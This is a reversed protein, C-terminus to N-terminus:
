GMKIRAQARGPTVAMLALAAAALFGLIIHESQGAWGAAFSAAAQGAGIAAFQLALGFGQEQMSARSTLYSTLLRLTAVSWGALLVVPILLWASTAYIAGVLAVALGALMPRLHHSAHDAVRRGTFHVIQAVLMVAGCLSLLWSISERSLPQNGSELMLAVHLASLGGAATASILLLPPLVNRRPSPLNCVAKTKAPGPLPALMIGLMAGGALFAPMYFPSATEVAVTLQGLLPGSLEGAFLFANLWTFRRARQVQNPSWDAALAFAAPIVAAACAGALLRSAYLGTISEPRFIALALSFGALGLLLVPRRRWRDSIWGWLPALVCAAVPYAAALASIHRARWVSGSEPAARDVLEPLFPLVASHGLTVTTVAAILLAVAIREHNVAVEGGGAPAKMDHHVTKAFVAKDLPERRHQDGASSQPRATDRSL